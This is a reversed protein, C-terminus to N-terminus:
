IGGAFYHRNALVGSPCIPQRDIFGAFEVRSFPVSLADATAVMLSYFLTRKRFRSARVSHALEQTIFDLSDRFTESVTERGPFEKNFENYARSIETIDCIGKIIAVLVDSTFEVEIMRAIQRDSFIKMKQWSSLSSDEAALRYATQKFPGFYKANLREQRNLTLTYTNLREFMAWVEPDTANEMIETSIEYQLFDRQVPEPLGQFTVGGLENQNRDLVLRGDYFDLIAQLRQQGDVVEYAMLKTRPNIIRRLYVKPM